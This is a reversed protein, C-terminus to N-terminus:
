PPRATTAAGGGGGERRGRDRALRPAARTGTDERPREDPAVLLELELVQGGVHRLDGPAGLAALVGVGEAVRHEAQEAAIRQRVRLEDGAATDRPAGPPFARVVGSPLAGSLELAAGGLDYGKHGIDASARIITMMSPMAQVGAVALRNGRAVRDIIPNLQEAFERVATTLKEHDAEIDEPPTIAEMDAAAQEFVAQCKELAAVTGKM